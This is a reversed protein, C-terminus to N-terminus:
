GYQLYNYAYTNIDVKSKTTAFISCFSSIKMKNETSTEKDNLFQTQLSM